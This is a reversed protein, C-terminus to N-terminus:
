KVLVLKIVKVFEGAEMRCIYMGAAASQNHDNTGEWVTQFCGAQQQTNVLTKVQRGQLDYVVLRVFNPKPLEYGIITIANFPNPYNQLLEFGRPQHVQQNIVQTPLESIFKGIMGVQGAGWGATPSAFSLPLYLQTSSISKWTAGGDDSYGPCQGSTVFLVSNNTHPVFVITAPNIPLFSSVVTWNQGGDTTKALSNETGSYPFYASGAFGTLSDKFAITTIGYNQGTTSLPTNFATWHLGQDTSRLVRLPSGTATGYGTGFWANNTGEV